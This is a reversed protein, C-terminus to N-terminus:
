RNKNSNQNKKMLMLTAAVLTAVIFTLTFVAISPTEPIVMYTYFLGLNDAVAVNGLKDYAIIQYKVQTQDPMAPIDATYENGSIFNMTVNTWDGNDAYSLIVEQVGSSDTVDVTVQVDQDPFPESPSHVPTGINPPTTDTTAYLKYIKGNLDCIYLEDEEDVGFSSINLSTDLLETNIAEGVGDYELAWIRGSGYDGYIYAGTLGLLESGRYVFGGTATYGIDRGYDLLPLELGTQDCGSSPSYCQNGEMINWGYNGGNEIIDIEERSSQGVDGAWLWDTIPDFSFRWPNRLGYAWIEERYGQANGVFPNDAPIGYNKGNSPSDVDIRLISGLLTSRNQGNGSPDGGSGGDGLAVYLYGDPGFAIQGGNHNAYPQQVELIIQESNEDGQNPNGQSVTYRAIVTRRPNDATYDVYFFGNSGFNPHFALGLLGQEGGYLVMDSIDLFVDSTTTSESNDFVRIQGQQSVVFLRNTGDGAHYIGVPRNFSLNPFAETVGYVPEIGTVGQINYMLILSVGLASIAVLIIAFFAVRAHKM